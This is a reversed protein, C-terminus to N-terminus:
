NVRNLMRPLNEDPLHSQISLRLKNLFYVYNERTGPVEKWGENVIGSFRPEKVFVAKFGYDRLADLTEKREEATGDLFKNVSMIEGMVRVGAMRAWYLKSNIPRFVAVKDGKDMGNAKLFDKTAVMEMFTEHHSAKNDTSRLSRLSQDVVFIGVMGLFIA